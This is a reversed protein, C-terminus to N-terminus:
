AAVFPDCEVWESIKIAAIIRAIDSPMAPKVLYYSANLQTARLHDRAEDSGSLVVVALSALEPQQRIWELIEFGNVYPLKLDLFLLCPLPYEERDAYIGEGSMYDLGEKGDSAIQVPNLINAKKLAWKLAFVDDPNDEIILFTHGNSTM